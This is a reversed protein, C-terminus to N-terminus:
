DNGERRVLVGLSRVTRGNVDVAFIREKQKVGGSPLSGKREKQKKRQKKTKEVSEIKLLVPFGFPTTCM